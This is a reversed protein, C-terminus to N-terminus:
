GRRGVPGSAAAAADRDNSTTGDRDRAYAEVLARYGPQAVLLDAHEGEAVVRGDEMYAVRDALAITSPRSAVLITTAGGVEARLNALVVAETTPDLASTVDDLVLLSPQSALARAMAVRQRQGGSLSVGREGVVTAAGDPLDHVFDAAALRLSREPEGAPLPRWLGVNDAITGAFLFADQFVLRRPGALVAVTGRDPALVGAIVQVLTSKGAGTRGVLAITAGDPVSLDVGDLVPRGTEYAFSVGRLEVGQGPPPAVAGVLPDPEMPQALLGQVRDWGALSRPIDGLLFGIMRLPWVLLGYLYVFGSVDGVTVAGSAVRRAGLAVLLVNTLAPLGDLLAEFDARMTATRVKAQRLRAATEAVRAVEGDAQGLAKVVLAGELSEHVRASLEGLQSQAEEAPGEVRHQYWVNVLAIM